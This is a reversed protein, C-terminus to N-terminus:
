TFGASRGAHRIISENNLPPPWGIYFIALAASNTEQTNNTSIGPHRWQVIGVFRLPDTKM